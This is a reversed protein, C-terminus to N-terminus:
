NIFYISVILFIIDSNQLNSLIERDWEQGAMIQGDHWISILGMRKLPELHKQLEAKLHADEHSYSIFLKLADTARTEHRAKTQDIEDVKRTAKSKGANTLSVTGGFGSGISILKAEKLEAHVRWYHTNRVWKFLQESVVQVTM